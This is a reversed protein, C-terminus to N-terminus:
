IDPIRPEKHSEQMLFACKGITEGSALWEFTSTLIGVGLTNKVPNKGREECQAFSSKAFRSFPRWQSNPESKKWHLLCQSAGSVGGCVFLEPTSYSPVNSMRCENEGKRRSTKSKCIWANYSGRDTAKHSLPGRGRQHSTHPCTFSRCFAREM